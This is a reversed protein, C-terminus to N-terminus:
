AVPQALIADVVDFRGEDEDAWLDRPPTTLAERLRPALEARNRIWPVIQARDLAGANAEGHGTICRYTM